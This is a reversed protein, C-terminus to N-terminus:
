SKWRQYMQLQKDAEEKKLHKHVHDKYQNFRVYVLGCFKCKFIGGSTTDIQLLDFFLSLHYM